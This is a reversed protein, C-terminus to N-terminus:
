AAGRKKPRRELQEILRLTLRGPVRAGIEWKQVTSLSVGLARAFAEQTRFGLRLRRGRMSEGQAKAETQKVGCRWAYPIVQALVSALALRGLTRRIVGSFPQM